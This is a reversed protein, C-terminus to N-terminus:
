WEDVCKMRNEFFRPWGGSGRGTDRGPFRDCPAATTLTEKFGAAPPSGVTEPLWWEGEINTRLGRIDVPKTRRTGRRRLWGPAREPLDRRAAATGPGRRRPRRVGRWAPAGGGGSWATGRLFRSASPTLARQLGPAPQRWPPLAAPLRPRPLCPGRFRSGAGTGPGPCAARLRCECRAPLLGPGSDRARAPSPRHCPRPSEAGARRDRRCASGPTSPGTSRSSFGDAWPDQKLARSDTARRV